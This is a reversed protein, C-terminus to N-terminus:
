FMKNIISREKLFQPDTSLLKSVSHSSALLEETTEFLERIMEFDDGEYSSALVYTIRLITLLAEESLYSLYDRYFFIHEITYDAMETSPFAKNLSDVEWPTLMEPRSVLYNIWCM